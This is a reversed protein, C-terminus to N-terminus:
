AQWEHASSFTDGSHDSGADDRVLAIVLKKRTSDHKGEELAESDEEEESLVARGRESSGSSKWEQDKDVEVPSDLPPSSGLPISEISSGISTRQQARSPGAVAADSRGAHARHM